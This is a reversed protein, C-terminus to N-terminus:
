QQTVPISFRYMTYAEDARLPDFSGSGTRTCLMVPGQDEAFGILMIRDTTLEDCRDLQRTPQRWFDVGAAHVTSSLSMPNYASLTTLMLLADQYQELRVSEVVESGGGFAGLTDRFDNAWEKHFEGLEREAWEAVPVPAGTEANTYIRQTIDVQQGDAIDGLEHVLIWTDRMPRQLGGATFADRWSQILLCNTLPHGLNNTITSGDAIRPAPEGQERRVPRVTINADISRRLHGSWRGEFQKLTARIPVDEIVASAPLLRYRAPDAYSGTSSLVNSETPMPKLFCDTRRPETIRAYDSPLWLDVWSHTGTKLGFYATATAENQGVTADVISLQHLSQGVGRVAQVSVLSLAVAAGAVVAFASWAHRTWGRTNLFWWSGFTAIGVYAISFLIAALLYLGTSRRFAVTSELYRFLGQRDPQEVRRNSRLRLTREFFQVPKVEDGRLLAALEAAVFIVQGREVSRRAIITAEPDKERVVAQAGAVTECLAVPIPQDFYEWSDDDEDQTRQVGLLRRLEPLHDRPEVRGIRVPLIPALQRSAAVTDATSAAAILLQGGQRVWAVLADLQAPSLATADAQEWVIGDVMELGPWLDPLEDPALHAVQVPRDYELALDQSELEGIRGMSGKSLELLLYEDGVLVDPPQGPKLSRVLEGNHIIEVVNGDADLVDIAFAVEQTTPAAACYMTYRRPGAPEGRLQVRVQDSVLDGDRDPQEVRLTGEFSSQGELSLEVTVPVWAGARIVDGYATPYGIHVIRGILRAHVTAPAVLVAGLAIMSCLIRVVRVSM